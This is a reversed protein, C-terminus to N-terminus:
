QTEPSLPDSFDIKFVHSLPNALHNHLSIKLCDQKSILTLCGQITWISPTTSPQHIAMMDWCPQSTLLSTSSDHKPGSDHPFLQYPGQLNKVLHLICLPNEATIGNKKLDDDVEVIAQADKALYRHYLKKWRIFLPDHVLSKWKHCVLSVNQYLDVIPLFGFIRQLLEAPFQNIHGCPAYNQDTVGLLGYCSASLSDLMLSMEDDDDEEFFESSSSRVDEGQGHVSSFPRKRSFVPDSPSVDNDSDIEVAAEEVACSADEAMEPTHSRSTSQETSVDGHSPSFSSSTKRGKGVDM